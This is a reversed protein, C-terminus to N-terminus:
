LKFEEGPKDWQHIITGRYAAVKFWHDKLMLARAWGICAIIFFVWGLIAFVELVSYGWM